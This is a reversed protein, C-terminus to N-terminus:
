LGKRLLAKKARPYNAFLRESKYPSKYRVCLTDTNLPRLDYYFSLSKFSMKM